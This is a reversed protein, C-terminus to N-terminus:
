VKRKYNITEEGINANYGAARLEFCLLIAVIREWGKIHIKMKNQKDM